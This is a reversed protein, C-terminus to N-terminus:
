EPHLLELNNKIKYAKYTSIRIGQERLYLRMKPISIKKEQDEKQDIIFSLNEFCIKELQEETIEQSEKTEAQDTAIEYRTYQISKKKREYQAILLGCDKEPKPDELDGLYECNLCSDRGCRIHDVDLYQISCLESNYTQDKFPNNSIRYVYGFGRKKLNVHFQVLHARITKDLLSMSIVPIILPRVLFRQSEMTQVLAKNLTKFWDRKGLAYSPEDFIIMRGMRKRQLEKMYESHTFVIQDVGLKDVPLVMKKSGVNIKKLVVRQKRTSGLNSNTKFGEFIRAIGIATYSKGIGAEGTVTINTAQKRNVRNRIANQFHPAICAKKSVLMEWGNYDMIKLDTPM